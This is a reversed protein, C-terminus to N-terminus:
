ADPHHWSRDAAARCRLGTWSDDDGPRLPVFDRPLDAQRTRTTRASPSMASITASIRPM